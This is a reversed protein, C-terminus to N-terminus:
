TSSRKSRMWTNGDLASPDNPPLVGSKLSEVPRHTNTGGSQGAAKPLSALFEDADAQLEERTNGALRKAQKPTLGKDVAVELLLAQREAAQARKEAATLAEASRQEATKQAEALKDFEAAKTKVQDYDAYKGRERTLRDAVIRDVDAQTFSSQPAPETPATSTPNPQTM